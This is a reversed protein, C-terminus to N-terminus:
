DAVAKAWRLIIQYVYFVAIAAVWVAGITVFTGVPVFWNLYRIWPVDSLGTIFERFPSDPLFFMIKAAVYNLFANLRDLM